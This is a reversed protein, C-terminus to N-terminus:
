IRSRIRLQWHPEEKRPSPVGPQGIGVVEPVIDNSCRVVAYDHDVDIISNARVTEQSRLLNALITVEVGPQQILSLSQFPDLLVDMQKAAIWIMHNQM